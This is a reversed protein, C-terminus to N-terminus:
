GEAKYFIKMYLVTGVKLNEHVILKRMYDSILLSISLSPVLKQFIRNLSNVFCLHLIYLKAGVFYSPKIFRNKVRSVLCLSPVILLIQCTPPFTLTEAKHYIQPCLTLLFLVKANCVPCSSAHESRCSFSRCSSDPVRRDM